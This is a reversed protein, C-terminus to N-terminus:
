QMLEVKLRTSYAYILDDSYLLFLHQTYIYMCVYVYVYMCVYTRVYTSGYMCVIFISVYFCVHLATSAYVYMCIYVYMRVSSTYTCVICIAFALYRMCVYMCIYVYITYVYQVTCVQRNSINSAAKRLLSPM